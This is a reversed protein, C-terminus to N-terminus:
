DNTVTDVIKGTAKSKKKQLKPPLQTGSRAWKRNKKAGDELKWGLQQWIPGRMTVLFTNANPSEKINTPSFRSQTALVRLAERKSNICGCEPKCFSERKNGNCM